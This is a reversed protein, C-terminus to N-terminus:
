HELFIPRYSFNPSGQSSVSSCRYGIKKNYVHLLTKLKTFSVTMVMTEGFSAARVIAYCKANIIENYIYKSHDCEHTCCAIFKIYFKSLM